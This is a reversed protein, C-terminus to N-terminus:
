YTVQILELCQDGDRSMTPRNPKNGIAIWKKWRLTKWPAVMGPYVSNLTSLAAGSNETRGACPTKRILVRLDHTTLWPSSYTEM